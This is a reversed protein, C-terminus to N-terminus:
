IQMHAKLGSAISTTGQKITRHKGLPATLLLATTPHAGGGQSM